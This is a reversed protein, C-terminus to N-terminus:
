VHECSRFVPSHGDYQSAGKKDPKHEAERVDELRFAMECFNDAHTQCKHGAAVMCADFVEAERQVRHTHNSETIATGIIRAWASSKSERSADV